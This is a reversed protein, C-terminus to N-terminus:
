VCVGCSGEGCVWGGESERWSSTGFENQGVARPRGRLVVDGDSPDGVELFTVGTGIGGGVM